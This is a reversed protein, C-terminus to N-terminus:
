RQDLSATYIRVDQLSGTFYSDGSGTIGGVTVEGTGDRISSEELTRPFCLAIVLLLVM